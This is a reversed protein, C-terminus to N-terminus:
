SNQVGNSDEKFSLIFMLIVGITIAIDAVNFVPFHYSFINFSIYDIVVGRIIRDILNGIIGGFLLGYTICNLKGDVNRKEDKKLYYLLVLILCLSLIIIFTRNGSFMSFAVGDNETYIFELFNPIVIIKSLYAKAINKILQDIIFVVCTILAIKKKM